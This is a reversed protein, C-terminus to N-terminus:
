CSCSVLGPWQKCWRLFIWDHCQTWLIEQTAWGWFGVPHFYKLTLLSLTGTPSVLCQNGGHALPSAPHVETLTWLVAWLRPKLSAETQLGWDSVVHLLLHGWSQILALFCSLSQALTFDLQCLYYQHTSLVDVASISFFDTWCRCARRYRDETCCIGLM